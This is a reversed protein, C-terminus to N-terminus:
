WRMLLVTPYIQNVVLTRVAMGCILPDKDKICALLADFVRPQLSSQETITNMAQSRVSLEADVDEAISALDNLLKPSLGPKWPLMPWTSPDSDSWEWGQRLIDEPIPSQKWQQHLIENADHRSPEYSLWKVVEILTERPLTANGLM